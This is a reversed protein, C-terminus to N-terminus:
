QGISKILGGDIRLVSGTVYSAPASALFTVVSAFEEPRGYRGAPISAVSAQVVDDVPKGQREAAKADLEDVRRTKIRGPVVVNVTVGDGAVEAAVTKSWGVLSARLTNSIGLNPIPQVVGSSTSTVIRGWGRQRMGPLLANSVQIVSIVMSEFYKRLAAAEMASASGPPPGGTINVLIDIPNGNSVVNKILAEVSTPVGLDCLQSSVNTHFEEKVAAVANDLSQEDVDVMMLHTGEAALSRCIASGLGGAAALVLARKGELGLNM